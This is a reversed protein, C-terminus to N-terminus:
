AGVAVKEPTLLDAAGVAEWLGGRRTAAFPVFALPTHGTLVFGYSKRDRFHWRRDLGRYDFLEPEKRDIIRDLTVVAVLGGQPLFRLQPIAGALARGFTKDVWDCAADFAREPTKKVVHVLLPGRYDTKWSRNDIGKGHALLWAWPQRFSLAKM